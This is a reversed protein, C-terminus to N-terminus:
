PCLVVLGSVNTLLLGLWFRADRLRVFNSERFRAASLM